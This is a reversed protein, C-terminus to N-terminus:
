WSSFICGLGGRGEIVEVRFLFDFVGFELYFEERVEIGVNFWTLFEIYSFDLGVDLVSLFFGRM